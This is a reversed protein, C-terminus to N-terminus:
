NTTHVIFGNSEISTREFRAGPIVRLPGRDLTVMAYAADVDESAKFVNPDRTLHAAATDITRSNAYRAILQDLLPQDINAHAFYTPGFRYGTNTYNGMVTDLTIPVPFKTTVIDSETSNKVKGRHSVGVKLAGGWEGSQFPLSLNVRGTLDRD